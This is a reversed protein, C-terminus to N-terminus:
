TEEDRKEKWGIKLISNEGREEGEGRLEGKLEGRLEGREGPGSLLLLRV